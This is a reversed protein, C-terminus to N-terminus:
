IKKGENEVGMVQRVLAVEQSQGFSTNLVMKQRDLLTPKIIIVKCSSKEGM